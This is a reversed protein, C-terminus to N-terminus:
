ERNVPHARYSRSCRHHQLSNRRGTSHGSRSHCPDASSAKSQWPAPLNQASCESRLPRVLMTDAKPDPSACRFCKPRQVVSQESPYTWVVVATTCTCQALTRALRVEGRLKLEQCVEVLEQLGVPVRTLRSLMLLLPKLEEIVTFSKQGGTRFGLPVVSSRLHTFLVDLSHQLPQRRKWSVAENSQGPSASCAPEM